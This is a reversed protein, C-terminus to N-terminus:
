LVMLKAITNGVRLVYSGSTVKNLHLHCLGKTLKGTQIIKGYYDEIYYVGGDSIVSIENFLVPNPFVKLGESSNIINNSLAECTEEIDVFRWNKQKTLYAIENKVIDKPIYLGYVGVEINENIIENQAWGQITLGINKCDMPSFNFIGSAYIMSRIDWTGLNQNFKRAFSFMSQMDKGKSTNWKGIDQNFAESKSFMFTFYEVQSVDWRGIDQNFANSQRFMLSM